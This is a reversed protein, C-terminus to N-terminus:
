VLLAFVALAALAPLSVILAPAAAKCDVLARAELFGNGLYATHSREEEPVPRLQQAADSFILDATPEPSHFMKFSFEDGFKQGFHQQAHLFLNLITNIETENKNEGGRTVLANTRVEGVNCDEYDRIQARTGDRCLLQYDATLQNRAWFEQRKGDCNEQVTTHKVFAVDGGGEVLCRFAGTHGYYGESADRACYDGSSGHCLQCLNYWNYGFNYDSSLAGPACAKTFTQAAAQLSDCGYGRMRENSILYAMPVVWGAGEMVGTHCTKKNRLYLLDTDLDTEKSVAVVFFSSKDEDYVENMIPIQSFQHGATYVDGADLMVMDALGGNIQRMCDIASHGRFCTLEPKLLQARLAQRMQNCKIQEAYSTVCLRLAGVPCSRVEMIDKYADGLYRLYLQDDHKIPYLSVTSDQFLLNPRVGYRYSEFLAFRYDGYEDPEVPSPSGYLNVAEKLFRQYKIRLDHPKASTTLVAHSPIRGWNCMQYDALPRRGGDLCVLEFENEDMDPPIATSTIADEGAVRVGVGKRANAAIVESPTSHKVFAIDGAEVLCRFAGEMGAYPDADTCKEGPEEAGCLACLQNSNDGLPNYQTTLAGVACSDGFFESVSKVHNNCDAISMEGKSMLKAIPMVWGALNGVGSFCAKKGRIDALRQIDSDRKVVAVAYYERVDGYYLEQMIPVLSHFRGAIFTLGPDLVVMDAQDQDVMRMCESSDFGQVCEVSFANFGFKYSDKILTQNFDTCKQEEFTNLTCWRIHGAFKADSNFFNSLMFVLLIVSPFKMKQKLM